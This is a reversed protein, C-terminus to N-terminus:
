MKKVRVINSCAIKMFIASIIVGIYFLFSLDALSGVLYLVFTWTMAYVSIRSRINRPLYPNSYVGVFMLIVFVILFEVVLYIINSLITQPIVIDLYRNWGVNIYDLLKYNEYFYGDSKSAIKSLDLSSDDLSTYMVKKLESKTEGSGYLVTFYDAYFAITLTTSTENTNFAVSFSSGDSYVKPTSTSLKNDVIKVDTTPDNYISQFLVLEDAYTVDATRSITIISPVACLIVFIVFYLVVRWVKDALYKGLVAPKFLSDLLRM